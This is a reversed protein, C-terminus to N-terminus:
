SCPPPHISPEPSAVSVIADTLKGDIFQYPSILWLQLAQCEPSEAPDLWPNAVRAERLKAELRPRNESAALEEIALLAEVLPVPLTEPSNLLNLWSDCYGESGPLQYAAPLPLNRGQLLGDFQDFFQALHKVRIAGLVAPDTFRKFEIKRMNNTEVDKSM